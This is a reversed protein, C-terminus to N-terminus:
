DKIKRQKYWCWATFIFGCAVFFWYNAIFSIGSLTSVGLLLAAVGISASWTAGAFYVMRKTQRNQQELQEKIDRLTPEQSLTKDEDGVM